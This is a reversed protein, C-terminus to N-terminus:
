NRMLPYYIIGKTRFNYIFAANTGKHEKLLDQFQGLYLREGAPAGQILSKWSEPDDLRTNQIAQFVEDKTEIAFIPNELASASWNQAQAVAEEVITKRNVKKGKNLSKFIKVDPDKDNPRSDAQSDNRLLPTIRHRGENRDRERIEARLYHALDSVRVEAEDQRNSSKVKATDSSKLLVIWSHSEKTPISSTYANSATVSRDINALEASIRSTWLENLIRIGVKDLLDPDYCDIIVDCRRTSWATSEIRPKRKAKSKAQANLYTMMGTCLGSWTMQFGVGHVPYDRTPLPQHDRILSDYRGGAAFVARRKRDYLCQFLLNGRYFKENYSSLPSLYVKRNVNMGRLYTMVSHLHAFVPEMDATDRLMSRLKLLAKELSDRFDFRELEDLSTSTMAIPPARLEYRVRTWTWDATNLKSMTEKIAFWKGQDVDCFTLIGDLLRSHNIHYCMVTNSLNPFVDLIEDVVKLVQAEDLALNSSKTGVIDFNAEGFINPNDKRPDPRYVDSFAFTKPEPRASRALLIANPLILDYPLQLTNGSVDLMRVVDSAVYCPHHPFIAPNDTRELAGHRRFIEVLERKVKTQLDLDPLDRSMASVGDLLRVKQALNSPISAVSSGRENFPTSFLTSIFNSRLQSTPDNLERRVLRSTQDEDQLPIMNILESCSPRQSPNYQVLSMLISAQVIKEPSAMASPLKHGEKALPDLSEAREMGTAFPVNMELFIIGLSYIDAKQDYKGIGTSRVEPAVYWATGVDKTFNGLQHETSSGTLGPVRHEGPRALGFDGIRLDGSSDIFINEPKLDRHVISASHIHALGEAIQRFLRWCETINSQVGTNILDRLTEQKCYEMQIYLMTWTNNKSVSAWQDLGFEDTKRSSSFKHSEYGNAAVHNPSTDSDGSAIESESSADSDDNPDGFVINNSSIFDLGRFSLPIAPQLDLSDISATAPELSTETESVNRREAPIDEEIWSAFYRVVNPHNLRSLVTAESLVPDLAARSKAKIKKIAYLQGDTKNRARFVEGFGGRGLRGEEVFKRAYESSDLPAQSERRMRSNTLSHSGLQEALYDDENRFFEFHLLDWASPRQKPKHNFTARLLSKLSQTLGLESIAIFPSDYQHLINQGFAMQLLCVGFDWVDTGTTPEREDAGAILEPAVWGLPHRPKFHATLLHLLHSYVGDSWRAVTTLAESNWLLINALHVSGHISGHQHYHHLGELLQMCWGKLRKSDLCTAISLYDQLSGKSSFESLISVTWHATDAPESGGDNTRQILFNLPKVVNQNVVARMQADLSSELDQLRRRVIFEMGQCHCEKLILFPTSQAYQSDPWPLVLSLAAGPSQRYLLKQSIARVTITRGKPDKITQISPRDFSLGRPIQEPVLEDSFTRHIAKRKAVRAKEQRVLEQLLEHERDAANETAAKAAQLQQETELDHAKARAAYERAAREEDLTPVHSAENQLASELVEQLAMLIDYIMESGVLTKPKHQIVDEAIARTKPRIDEDFELNLKPLSKPYTSPLSVHLSIAIREEGGLNFKLGVWFARDATKNWAGVKAKEEVFDDPYISRLADIEDQQIEPYNTISPAM